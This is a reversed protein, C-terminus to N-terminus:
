KQDDNKLDEAWAEKAYSLIKNDLDSTTRDVVKELGAVIARKLFKETFLAALMGLLTNGLTRLMAVLVPYM